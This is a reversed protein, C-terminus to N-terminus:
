GHYGVKECFNKIELIENEILGDIFAAFVESVDNQILDDIECKNMLAVADLYDEHTEKTIISDLIKGAYHFATLNTADVPLHDKLIDYLKLADTLNLM